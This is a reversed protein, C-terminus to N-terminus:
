KRSPRGGANNLTLTVQNSSASTNGAADFAKVWYTYTAGSTIASDAYSTGTVQGIQASNRWVSYGTVGVNDTAAKWTLKINKGKLALTLGSPVTPAQTDAVVMAKVVYHGDM